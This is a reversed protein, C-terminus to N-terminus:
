AVINIDKGLLEIEDLIWNVDQKTVSTVLVMRFFNPMSKRPQYAVM